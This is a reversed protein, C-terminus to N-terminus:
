GGLPPASEITVVDGFEVTLVPRREDDVVDIRHHLNLRRHELVSAASMDLAFQVARERAAELDPLEAGEEDVVFMDNALNFYFRPM